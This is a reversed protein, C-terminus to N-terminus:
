WWRRSWGKKKKWTLNDVGDESGGNPATKLDYYDGEDFEQGIDFYDQTIDANDILLLMLRNSM